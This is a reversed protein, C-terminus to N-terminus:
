KDDALDTGDIANTHRYNMMVATGFATLEILTAAERKRPGTFPLEGHLALHENLGLAGKAPIGTLLRPLGAPALNPASM